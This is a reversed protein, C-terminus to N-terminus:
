GEMQDVDYAILALVKIVVTYILDLQGKKKPKNFSM